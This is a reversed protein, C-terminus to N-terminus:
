QEWDGCKLCLKVNEGGMNYEHSWKHGEEDKCPTPEPHHDLDDSRWEGCKCCESICCESVEEYDDMAVWNHSCQYSEEFCAEKLNAYETNAKSLDTSILKAKNMCALTLDTDKLNAGRLDTRVLFAGRLIAKELNANSLDVGNLVKRTWDLQKGTSPDTLWLQHNDYSEQFYEPLNM